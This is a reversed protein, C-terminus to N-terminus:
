QQDRNRQLLYSERESGIHFREVVLPPVLCAVVGGLGEGELLRV